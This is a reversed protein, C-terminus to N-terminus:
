SHTNTSAESEDISPQAKFGKRNLGNHQRKRTGTRTQTSQAETALRQAGKWKQFRRAVQHTTTSSATSAPVSAVAPAGPSTSPPSATTPTLPTVAIKPPPSKEHRTVVSTLDDRNLTDTVWLHWLRWDETDALIPVIDKPAM